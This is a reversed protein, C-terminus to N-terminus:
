ILACSGLSRIPISIFPNLFIKPVQTSARM